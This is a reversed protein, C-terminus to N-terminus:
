LRNLICYIKWHRTIIRRTRAFKKRIDYEYPQAISWNRCAHCISKENATKALSVMKRFHRLFGEMPKAGLKCKEEKSYEQSSNIYEIREMDAVIHDYHIKFTATHVISGAHRYYHYFPRAIHGAKEAKLILKWTTATDEYYQKVPFCIDDFLRKHSLLTCASQPIKDAFNLRLIEKANGVTVKGNNNFVYRDSRYDYRKVFDCFVIDLNEKLALNLMEEYMDPEVTDDSDIFGIYEGTSVKIGENRANSLDGLELSIVRIRCDEKAITQCLAYSNDTSANEVLIIEINKYTQALLSEICKRLHKETNHVPVIISIKPM